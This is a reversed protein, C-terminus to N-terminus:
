CRGCVMYNLIEANGPNRELAHQFWAFAVDLEKSRPLCSSSPLCRPELCCSLFLRSVGAGVVWIVLASHLTGLSASGLWPQGLGRGNNLLTRRPCLESQLPCWPLARIPLAASQSVERLVHPRPQHRAGLCEPGAAARAYVGAGGGCAHRPGALPAPTVIETYCRGSPNLRFNPYHPPKSEPDSTPRRNLFLSCGVSGVKFALGLQNRTFAENLDDHFRRVIKSQPDKAEERTRELSQLASEFFFIALQLDPNAM